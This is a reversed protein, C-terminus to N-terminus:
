QWGGGGGRVEMMKSAMGLLVQMRETLSYCAVVVVVALLFSSSTAAVAWTVAAVVCRSCSARTAVMTTAHLVRSSAWALLCAVVRVQSFSFIM